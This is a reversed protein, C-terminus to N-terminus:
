QADWWIRSGFTDGNSLRGVADAYNVPNNASEQSQYPIRRPIAGASFQSPYTVPTLVPYGSRRWNSWTEIFNFLSGTTVWYQENIMKLSAALSSEDLPHAAAYTTAVGSSIAGTTANFQALSTMAAVVGNSYHQAATTAGVNWGRAKAEALLLETQSYSLLFNPADRSLYLGTVPRSYKGLPAADDGSGTPGPYLAYNTIDTAGGNLDHGNPLGIQIAPDSDGSLAQDANATKGAEPVEAIVGLRPDDTSKLFDIFTESWRVERYDDGVLLAGTTNNGFGTSNQTYVRANDDISTFTGGAAAKEAWTQATSASVKTMRMAIKLMLSYGFKKWSDIDGKYIVDNTPIAKSADLGTIATELETLMSTYIAEQTDYVPTSVGSSAQLAESYPIDGYCDTILQMIEVKMITSVAALNSLEPNEKILSQIEVDLAAARYQEEFIRNQYSILSGSGVYKDGNSYYGFTSALVQTWMSQFLLQSYGTNSHEFQAQALLYNANFAEASTQKPDTNIQEFDSDCGLPILLLTVMLFKFINKM